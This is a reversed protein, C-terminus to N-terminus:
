KTIKLLGGKPGPVLGQVLLLNEEPKVEFVKLGLVTNQVVGMHGAMRKGRYVRGPTTTQGISGGHRARNSQGHTAPGGKFGHRKMVGAFGKGKSTGTVKVKDGAVFVDGVTIAKGIELEAKLEKIYKPTIKETLNKLLGLLPKNPNKKNGFAVQKTNIAMLPNVRVLTVPVRRGTSDYKQDQGLKLGYFINM